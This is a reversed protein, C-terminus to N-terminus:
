DGASHCLALRRDLVERDAATISMARAAMLHQRARGFDGTRRYLEGLTADLFHYGRLQQADALQLLERIAAAPGSLHSLVIARNLQYIPSPQLAILMDFLRLLEAWDTEAFTAASCHLRAIGAELHYTTLSAGRASRDLYSQAVGILRRDWLSRDQDELLLLRGESDTRASLRAAHFLMLALLAMTAPANCHAHQCLLHTLRAAEECLEERIAREGGSAAYGENFLLYLCQHVSDLRQSLDAATPVDLEVGQEVLRRKARQIRKKIAEEAALLARGIETNSFGCLVKLTLAIQDERDLSPHCCAFIMRLQGDEIGSDLFLDDVFAPDSISRSRAWDPALRAVIARHRLADLVRRRAVQHIWGAPNEPVGRQRWVRCAELLASQVMDEVLEVNAIGFMRTMSAILRGAEHRFFHEVLPATTDM